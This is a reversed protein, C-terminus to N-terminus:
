ESRDMVNILLPIEDGVIVDRNILTEGDMWGNKPRGRFRVGIVKTNRLRKVM